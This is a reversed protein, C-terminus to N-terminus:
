NTRGAREKALELKRQETASLRPRIKEYLEAAARYNGERFAAEAKPRLQEALVDLAYADRWERRNKQLVAFFEEDGRLAPEAFCKVLEELRTLGKEVGQWTTAAFNRYREAEEPSAVRILESLSYRVGQCVIEFGIEFSRQGHYVKVEINRKRFRVLTPSSDIQAFGFTQLFAFREGVCRAFQLRTREQTIDSKTPMEIAETADLLEYASRFDM